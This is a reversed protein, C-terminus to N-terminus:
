FYEKAFPLSSSDSFAIYSHESNSIRCGHHHNPEATDRTIRAPMDHLEMEFPGSTSNPIQDSVQLVAGPNARVVLSHQM